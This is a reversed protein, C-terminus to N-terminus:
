KSSNLEKPNTYVRMTFSSRIMEDERIFTIPFDVGIIWDSKNVGDLFDYFSKPSSIKSTTNVEYVNFGEDDSKMEQKSLVLSNFYNKHQKEFRSADFPADFANIIRRNKVQLEKLVESRENHFQKYKRLEANEKKLIGRHERYNKGEPILVLFSFLIVFLFLSLSLGLLYLTQRSINIKM